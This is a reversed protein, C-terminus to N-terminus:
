SEWMDVSQTGVVTGSNEVHALGVGLLHPALSVRLVRSDGGGINTYYPKWVFARFTEFSLASTNPTAEVKDLSIFLATAM